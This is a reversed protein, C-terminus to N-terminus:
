EADDGETVFVEHARVRVATRGTSNVLAAIRLAQAAKPDKAAILARYRADFEAIARHPDKTAVMIHEEPVSILRVQEPTYIWEVRGDSDVRMQPDLSVREAAERAKAREREEARREARVTFARAVLAAFFSPGTSVSITSWPGADITKEKPSVTELNARCLCAQIAVAEGRLRDLLPDDAMLAWAAEEPDDSVTLKELMEDLPPRRTAVEAGASAVIALDRAREAGVLMRRAEDIAAAAAVREADLRRRTRRTNEIAVVDGQKVEPLGALRASESEVKVIAADLDTLELERRALLSRVDELATEADHLEISM